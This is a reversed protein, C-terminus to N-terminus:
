ATLRAGKSMNCALHAAQTNSYSHDGGLSIAIVHDLSPSQPHPWVTVRPIGTECIGCVWGDRDFVAISEVDEVKVLRLAARRKRATDRRQLPRRAASVRAQARVIEPRTARYAKTHVAQCPKCRAVWSAGTRHFESTPLDEKCGLCIKKGDVVDSSRRPLIPSGHRQLNTVHASCLGHAYHPKGCEPITCFETVQRPTLGLPDSTRKWRTYHASCWGRALFKKECGDIICTRNTM